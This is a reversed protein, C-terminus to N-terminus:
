FRFYIFPADQSKPIMTMWFALGIMFGRLLPGDMRLLMATARRTFLQAELWHLALLALCGAIVLLSQTVEAPLAATGAAGRGFMTGIYALAAQLDSARFFVWLLTALTLTLAWEGAKLHALRSGALRWLLIVLAWVVGWILFTWNAGHWLGALGMVAILVFAQRAFSGKGGGLPIYLYDRIWRSLTIHWHQWFAQPTRALYPQRFNTTLRLGFLFAIGLAMDSYGSFDFYIQFGFLWAGVWASLADAPGDRFFNDAFPALSDALMVKKVLGLVCLSLGIVIFRPRPLRGEFLANIQPAFVRWRMIPGAILQGFFLKFLAFRALSVFPEAKGRGIDILFASLQFVYFSIGLPIVVGRGYFGIGAATALFVRYKFYILCGFNLALILWLWRRERQVPFQFGYNILIIVAALLSDRWGAVSYFVISAALLIWGKGPFAAFATWVLVLFFSFYLTDYSLPPDPSLFSRAPIAAFSTILMDPRQRLCFSFAMQRSPRADTQELFHYPREIDMIERSVRIARRPITSAWRMRCAAKEIPSDDIRRDAALRTQEILQDILTDPAVLRFQRM